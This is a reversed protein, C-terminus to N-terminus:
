KQGNLIFKGFLFQILLSIPAFAFLVVCFIIISYLSAYVIVDDGWLQYDMKYLFICYLILLIYNIPYTFFTLRKELFKITIVIFLPVLIFPIFFFTLRILLQMISIKENVLHVFFFNPNARVDRYSDPSTSLGCDRAKFVSEESRRNCAISTSLIVFRPRPSSVSLTVARKATARWM